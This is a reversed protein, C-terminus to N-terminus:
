VFAEDFVDGDISSVVDGIASATKDPRVPLTSPNMVVFREKPGTRSTTIFPSADQWFNLGVVVGFLVTSPPLTACATTFSRVSSPNGTGESGATTVCIPQEYKGCTM